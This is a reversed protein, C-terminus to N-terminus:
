QDPDADLGKRDAFSNGVTGCLLILYRAIFFACQDSVEDFGKRDASSNCLTGCLLFLCCDFICMFGSGRYRVLSVPLLCFPASIRFRM